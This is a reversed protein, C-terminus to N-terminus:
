LVLTGTKHAKVPASGKKSTTDQFPSHHPRIYSVETHSNGSGEDSHRHLCWRRVIPKDLSDIPRMVEHHKWVSANSFLSNPLGGSPQRM